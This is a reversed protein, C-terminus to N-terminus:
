NKMANFVEDMKVLLKKKINSSIRAPDFNGEKTENKLHELDFQCLCGEEAGIMKMEDIMVPVTHYIEILMNDLENFLDLRRKTLQVFNEDTNSYVQEIMEKALNDNQFLIEFLKQQDVTEYGLEKLKEQIMQDGKPALNTELENIKDTIDALEKQVDIVRHNLKYFLLAHYQLSFYGTLLYNGERAEFRIFVRRLDKENSTSVGQTKWDPLKKLLEGYFQRVLAPDFTHQESVTGDGLMVKVDVNKTLTVIYELFLSRIKQSKETMSKIFEDQSKAPIQM